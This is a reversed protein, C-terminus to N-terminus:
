TRWSGPDGGDLEGGAGELGMGVEVGRGVRGTGNVTVAPRAEVPQPPIMIEM